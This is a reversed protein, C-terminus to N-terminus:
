KVLESFFVPTKGDFVVQREANVTAIERMGFDVQRCKRGKSFPLTLTCAVRNVLVPAAGNLRPKKSTALDWDFDTNQATSVISLVAKATKALPQGDESALTFCVFQRNTKSLVVGDNFTVEGKPFGILMKTQPTDVKLIGDKLNWDIGPGMQLADPLTAPSLEGNVKMMGPWKEDIVFRLGQLIATNMVQENHPFQYMYSEQCFSSMLKSGITIDVPHAAPKIAFNKFAPGAAKIQSCYIEDTALALGWSGYYLPANLYDEDAARQYNWSKDHGAWIFFFVGDWDQWSGYTALVAPHEAAYKGPRQESTEYIMFPKGKVRFSLPAGLSNPHRRVTAAYPYLPSKKDAKKGWNKIYSSASHFTGGTLTSINLVSQGTSTDWTIPAVNIGVGRPALTRLYKELDTSYDILLHYCFYQYDAARADSYGASDLKVPRPRITGDKLSEGEKLKGWVRVLAAETEYKENLFRNWRKVFRKQFYAPYDKRAVHHELAKYLMSSALNSENVLEYVAITPEEGNRVGTYKNIHNIFNTAHRKQIAGVREDLYILKDFKRKNTNKVAEMWAARNEPSEEALVDYDEPKPTMHGNLEPCWIFIGEQKCRYVVYDYFDLTSKDGKVYDRFGKTIPRGNYFTDWSAWLRVGNIGLRKMRMIINNLQAHDEKDSTNINVGWFRIRQGRYHMHGDKVHVYEVARVGETLLGLWCAALVVTWVVRCFVRGLKTMFDGTKEVEGITKWLLSQALITLFAVNV